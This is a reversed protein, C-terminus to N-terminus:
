MNNYTHQCSANSRYHEVRRALDIINNISIIIIAM